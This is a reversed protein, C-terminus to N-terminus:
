LLDECGHASRNLHERILDCGYGRVGGTRCLQSVFNENESSTPLEAATGHHKAISGIDLGDCYPRVVM